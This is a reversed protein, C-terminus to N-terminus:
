PLRLSRVYGDARLLSLDADASHTGPGNEMGAGLWAGNWSALSRLQNHRPGATLNLKERVSGDSGLIALLPKAEESISAGGPNQIYGTSGAALLRGDPLPAVDLLVDGKDIDVARYGTRGAHGAPIVSLLGDWGSGDAPREPLLRGVAVIANGQWKLAKVETNVRTDIYSTGVRRGDPALETVLAGFYFEAPLAERFHQAHGEAYESPYLNIGVAIRGASDADLLVQWQGYLGGFPDFLGTTTARGGVAVGPEVLSRWTRAYGASAGAGANRVFRYALISNRGTHLAMVLEEGVAALRVGDRTARPLLATHDPIFLPDGIYPDNPIAADMFETQTLVAGRRDLRLLRVQNDTAIVVSIERSPHIAFDLLSWGQPAAYNSGPTAGDAILLRREPRMVAEFSPRLKEALAAWGSGAARVKVIAEGTVRHDVTIPPPPPLPDTGGGPSAGEGGCGTLLALM